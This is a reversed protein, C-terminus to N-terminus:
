KEGKFDTHEIFQQLINADHRCNCEGDHGRMESIWYEAVKLIREREQKAVGSDYCSLCMWIEDKDEQHIDCDFESM